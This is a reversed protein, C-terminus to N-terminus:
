GTEYAWQRSRALVTFALGDDRVDLGYAHENAVEQFVLEGDPSYVCVMHFPTYGDGSAVVVLRGNRADAAYVDQFAIDSPAPLTALLDGRANRVILDDGRLYLVAPAGNWTAIDFHSPPPQEDWSAVTVEDPTMVRFTGGREANPYTYLVLDMLPARSAEIVGFHTLHGATAIRAVTQGGADRVEVGAGAELAVVSEVDDRALVDATLANSTSSSVDFRRAPMDSPSPGADAKRLNITNVQVGLNAPMEGCAQIACLAVAVLTLRGPTLRGVAACPMSQLAM